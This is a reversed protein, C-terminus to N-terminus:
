PKNPSNTPWLQRLRMLEDDFRVNVRRTEADQEDMFRKQVEQSQINQELQRRLYAPAKKPDKQYFEMETDIKVRQQALELLRTQAAHAVAAINALATNREKDHLEKSPYRVMLARDRRREEFQRNRAEIEQKDRKDQEVLEAATMTPMIKARVTGSPNLVRQERDTCQAIPRDSTLRRGSADTCTYIGDINTGQAHACAAGLAWAVILFSRALARVQTM